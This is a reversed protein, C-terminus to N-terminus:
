IHNSPRRLLVWIFLLSLASALLGFLIEMPRLVRAAVLDM